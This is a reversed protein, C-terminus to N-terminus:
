AQPAHEGLSAWTLEAVVATVPFGGSNPLNNEGQQFAKVADETEHDFFGQIFSGPTLLDLRGPRFMRQLVGVNDASGFDQDGLSLQPRNGPIPLFLTKPDSAPPEASVAANRFLGRDVANRKVLGSGAMNCDRAAAFWNRGAVATRFNPFKPPRLGNVGLGWAMSLLGMQADAPWDPFGPFFTTLATENSKLRSTLLNDIGAGSLHLQAAGSATKVRNWEDKVEADTAATNTGNRLPPSSSGVLALADGLPDIKCGIGITVLGLSDLYM